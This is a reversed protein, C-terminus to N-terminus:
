KEWERVRQKERKVRGGSNLGEVVREEETMILGEGKELNGSTQGRRREGRRDRM